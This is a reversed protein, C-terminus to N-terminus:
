NSRVVFHCSRHQTPPRTPLRRRTSATKAEICSRTCRPHLGRVALDQITLRPLHDKGWTKAWPVNATSPCCPSPIFGQSSPRAYEKATPVCTEKRWGCLSSRAWNPCEAGVKPTRRRVARRRPTPLWDGALKTMESAGDSFCADSYGIVHHRFTFLPRSNTPVAYYAFHGTVIQGLWKGQPTPWHMRRRLEM